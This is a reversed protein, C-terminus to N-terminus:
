VISLYKRWYERMVRVNSVPAVPVPKVHMTVPEEIGVIDTIRNDVPDYVVQSPGIMKFHFGLMIKRLLKQTQKNSLQYKYKLSIVYNEILINKINKKKIDAWGRRKRELCKTFAKRHTLHDLQSVLKLKTQFLHRLSTYVTDPTAGEFNFNFERGKFRSCLTTHDFYVGMPPISYALDEFVSVWFADDTYLSAHMFVPYVIEKQVPM